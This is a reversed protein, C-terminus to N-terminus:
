IYYLTIFKHFQFFIKKLFEYISQFPYNTFFFSGTYHYMKHIICHNIYHKSVLPTDSHNEFNVTKGPNRLIQFRSQNNNIMSTKDKTVSM